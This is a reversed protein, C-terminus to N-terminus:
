CPGCRRERWGGGRGRRRTGRTGQERGEGERGGERWGRGALEAGSGNGGGIVATRQEKVVISANGGSEKLESVLHALATGGLDVFKRSEPELAFHRLIHNFLSYGLVM